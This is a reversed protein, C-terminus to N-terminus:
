NKSPAVVGAYHRTIEHGGCRGGLRVVVAEGRRVLGLPMVAVVAQDVVELEPQDLLVAGAAVHELRAAPRAEQQPLRGRDRAARDAEIEGAAHQGGRGSAPQAHHLAREGVHRQGVGREIQDVAHLHQGVHRGDAVGHGLQRAQGAHAAV